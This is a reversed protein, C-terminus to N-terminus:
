MPRVGLRTVTFTEELGERLSAITGPHSRGLEAALLRPQDLAGPHDPDAWGRRM